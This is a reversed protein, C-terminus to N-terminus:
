VRTWWAGSEREDTSLRLSAHAEGPPQGSRYGRVFSEVENLGKWTGPEPSGVMVFEIEPDAWDLSSFDGREWAALISRVLGPEGLGYALYGPPRKSAKRGWPM